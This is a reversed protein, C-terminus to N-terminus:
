AQYLEEPLIAPIQFSVCFGTGDSGVSPTLCAEEGFVLKLRQNVNSLAFGNNDKQSLVPQSLKEKLSALDEPTISAGNDEIVFRIFLKEKISIPSVTISFFNEESDPIYGHVFYNEILPQLTNKPIGYLNLSSHIHFEYEFSGYRYMYFNILNESQSCEEAISIYLNRRTQNRYMKSLLLLMQAADAYRNKIIQVRIQELANYLFHPNISTQMAYLEAKRQSIEYLYAKEVNRQLADCMSNFSKIIQSFEDDSKPVSLRYTLNNEGVYAMGEQISRIKKDSARFAIIYLLIAALCIGFSFVILIIEAYGQPLATKPLQYSIYLQYRENYLTQYYYNKGNLQTERASANSYTTLQPAQTDVLIEQPSTYNGTSSFLINSNKDLISFSSETDVGASDVINSFEITSYLLILTGLYEAADSDPDFITTCLGYVHSSPKQFNNSLNEIEADTLTQIQYPTLSRSTQKLNLPLLSSYQINYQFLHGTKTLLLAGQCDTDMSCLSSLLSLVDSRYQSPVNKSHNRYLSVLSQYKQDDAFLPALGSALTSYRTNVASSLASVALEYNKLNRDQEQRHMLHICLPLLVSTIALVAAICIIMIKTYYKRKIHQFM